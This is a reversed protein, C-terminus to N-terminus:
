RALATKLADELEDRRIRGLKRAVVGGDRDLVLTYPLGGVDDGLARLLDLGGTGAELMRYTLGMSKAFGKMKVADDIGIGVVQARKGLDGSAVQQLDPMEEKCPACWTAWFNVVLVKGRLTQGGVPNGELDRFSAQWLADTSIKGKHGDMRALGLWLGAVVAALGALLLPWQRMLAQM